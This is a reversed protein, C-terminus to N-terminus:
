ALAIDTWRGSKERAVPTVNDHSGDSALLKRKHKKDSLAQMLTLKPINAWREIRHVSVVSVLGDALVDNVLTKPTGNHSGHHSVKYHTVQSLLGRYDLGDLLPLWSGWQADGPMLLRTEGLGLVFVVSTNNIAHELGAASDFADPTQAREIRERLRPPLLLSALDVPSGDDGRALRDVYGAEDLAFTPFAPAGSEASGDAEAAALRLWREKAPPNMRRLSEVDRGPGLFDVTGGPLDPLRTPATATEIYRRLPKGAFGNQLTWMAQENTLSNLALGETGDAALQLALARAVMDQEARLRNAVPDDPRETWPLWVEGVEVASWREDAFGSVHDRHRHTAVVVDIRPVGDDDTVTEIIDAVIESMPHESAGQSHVGCDVLMRWERDRGPARVLFSDGFGVNYM